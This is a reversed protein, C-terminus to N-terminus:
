CGHGARQTSELVIRMSRPEVRYVGPRFRIRDAANIASVLRVRARGDTSWGVAGSEASRFIARPRGGRRSLLYTSRSECEGSWQLLLTKGDPSTVVRRWWGHAAPATVPLRRWRGEWHRYIASVEVLGGFRTCARYGRSPHSCRYPMVVANDTPAAIDGSMDGCATTIVVLALLLVVRV